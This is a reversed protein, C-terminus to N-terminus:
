AVCEVKTLVTSADAIWIESPIRGRYAVGPTAMDGPVNIHPVRTFVGNYVVPDFNQTVATLWVTRAYSTGYVAKPSRRQFGDTVSFAPSEVDSGGTTIRKTIVPSTGSCDVMQAQYSSTGSQVAVDTGSAYLCVRASQTGVTIATGAGATGATDTMINANDSTTGHVYLVKNSGVVIADLFNNGTDTTMVAFSVSSTTGSLSVVGCKIGNTGDQIGLFWNSGLAAFRKITTSGANTDTGTGAAISSGTITYPKTYAHTTASSACIVIGGPAVVTSIGATGTLVEATGITPTTGSVSIARIQCAPTDVIYSCVFSTGAVASVLGNANFVAATTNFNASLTATAATNPTITTGSLSLVVAEFATTSTCSVLLVVDTSVVCAAYNTGVNAARLVTVSGFTNTSRNYIVGTPQSSGNVGILLERNSGIDLCVGVQTMSTTLLQASPSTLESDSISWVGTAGATVLGVSSKGGAPTFALLTGASNLVRIPYAGKNDIVHYPEKPTDSTADQLTVSVGYTVPTMVALTSTSTLTISTASTVINSIGAAPGTDGNRVVEIRVADTDALTGVGSIYTLNVTDWSGGDTNTGTVHFLAFKTPDGLKSIRLKSKNTGTSDDWTAIEAALNAANADTESIYLATASAITAHNLRLIGAGPDAATTTSSFAYALGASAGDTGAAGQDGTRQFALLLSAGNAFPSAASGGTNTVTINRYGSPSAVATVNFTLFKTGDALDVLKLQGKVTSTSDDFTDLVTTWTAGLNDLLDVRITTAANQTANDLRLLGATPDADATLTSFTYRIGYVGGTLGLANMANIFAALEAHYADTDADFTDPSNVSDPTTSFQPISM